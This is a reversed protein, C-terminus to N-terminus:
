SSKNNSGRSLKSRQYLYTREDTFGGLYIKFKYIRKNFYCKINVEGLYIVKWLM